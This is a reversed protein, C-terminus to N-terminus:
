AQGDILNISKHQEQGQKGEMKFELHHMVEGM